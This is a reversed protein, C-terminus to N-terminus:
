ATGRQVGMMAPQRVLGFNLVIALLNHTVVISSILSIVVGILLTFAFGQVPGSGLFALILSTIITSTNSDRIAPWARSVAAEVAAGVTRGARMEEKFREFILVNADVAMGVSLVFGAMGALTLTVPVVKFIALVVGAYFLLAVSALLGPLRYYSIMFIVVIILGLLGAALSRRVSDAGLSAGVDTSQLVVITAPLAGSSINTALEKASDQTFQGTIQSQGGLIPQITYPNTLLKGGQNPDATIKAVFAPDNWHDIDQQTLDLWIGLHREPCDANQGPCANVNDTTLKGFLDSGRSNFNVNVVWNVGNQDLAASASSIDDGTLGSLQPRYGPSTQRGQPAAPDKVWTTYVLRSTRGIVRQARDASVGALQVLIRDNGEGQVIPENVGLANVRREIVAVATQQVDKVNRGPPINTLQLELQTGGSLDLGKHIVPLNIDGIHPPAPTPGTLPYHNLVRSIYGGGDIVLSYILLALVLLRVPWALVLQLM